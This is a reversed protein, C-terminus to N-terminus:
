EEESDDKKKKKETKDANSGCDMKNKDKKPKIPEKGKDMRRRNRMELRKEKKAIKRKEKPTLPKKVQTDKEGIEIICVFEYDPHERTAIGITNMKKGLIYDRQKKATKKDIVGADSAGALISIAIDLAQNKSYIMLEKLDLYKETECLKRVRSKFNKSGTEGTKSQFFAYNKGLQYLDKEPFLPEVNKQFRLDRKLSVLYPNTSGVSDIYAKLITKAFLKSDIRALNIYYLAMKEEQNLYAIKHFTNAKNLQAPTWTWDKDEFKRKSFDIKSGVQSYGPVTLLLYIILLIKQM